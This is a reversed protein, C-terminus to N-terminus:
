SSSNYLKILNQCENALFENLISTSKFLKTKTIEEGSIIGNKDVSKQLSTVRYVCIDTRRYIQIDTQRDPKPSVRNEGDSILFSTWNKEHINGKDILM